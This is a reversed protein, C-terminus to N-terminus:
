VRAQTVTYCSNKAPGFIRSFGTEGGSSIKTTKIKVSLALCQGRRKIMAPSIFSSFDGTPSPLIDDAPKFYRYLAMTLDLLVITCLVCM